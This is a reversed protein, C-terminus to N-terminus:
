AIDALSIRDARYHTYSLCRPVGLVDSLLSERLLSVSGESVGLQRGTVADSRVAEVTTDIRGFPVDFLFAFWQAVPLLPVLGNCHVSRRIIEGPNPEDYYGVTVCVVEGGVRGLGEVMLVEDAETELQDRIVPTSRVMRYELLGIRMATGDPWPLTARQDNPVFDDVSVQLMVPAAKRGPAPDPGILGQATLIEVAEVVAQRSVGTHRVLASVSLDRGLRLEGVRLGSRILEYARRTSANAPPKSDIPNESRPTM